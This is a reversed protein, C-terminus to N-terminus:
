ELDDDYLDEGLLRDYSTPLTEHIAAREAQQKATQLANYQASTRASAAVEARVEYLRQRGPSLAERLQQVGEQPTMGGGPPRAQVRPAAFETIPADTLLPFRGVRGVERMQGGQPGSAVVPRFPERTPPRMVNFRGGGVGGGSAHREPVTDFEIDGEGSDFTIDMDTDQPPTADLAELDFYGPEAEAGAIQSRYQAASSAQRERM